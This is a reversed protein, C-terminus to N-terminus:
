LLNQFRAVELSKWNPGFACLKSSRTLVSFPHLSRETLTDKLNKAVLILIDPFNLKAILLYVLTFTSTLIYTLIKFEIVKVYYLIKIQSM